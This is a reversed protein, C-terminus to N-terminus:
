SSLIDTQIFDYNKYTNLLFESYSHEFAGILIDNTYTALTYRLTM